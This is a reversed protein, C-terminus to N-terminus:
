RKAGGAGAGSGAGGASGAGGGEGKGGPERGPMERGTGEKDGAGMSATAPKNKAVRYQESNKAMTKVLATFEKSGPKLGLTQAVLGWGHGSKGEALAIVDSLSKGSAKALELALWVEGPKYGQALLGDLTTTSVKFELSLKAMLATPDAVAGSNVMAVETDLQVSGTTAIGGSTTTQAFLGSGIALSLVLAVTGTMPFRKM